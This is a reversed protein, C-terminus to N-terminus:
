RRAHVDFWASDIMGSTIVNRWLWLFDPLTYWGDTHEMPTLCHHIQAVVAPDKKHQRRGAAWRMRSRAGALLKHIIPSRRLKWRLWQRASWNVHALSGASPIMTPRQSRQHVLSFSTYGRRALELLMEDCGEKGAEFSVFTPCENGMGRLCVYDAGEIDVKIYDPVGYERFISSITRAPVSIQTATKGDRTAAAYDFSNWQPNESLWFPLVGESEGIAVNLLTYRGADIEKAFRQQLSTCLDPSAEIGVVHYGLALYHATDAGDYVGVDYA